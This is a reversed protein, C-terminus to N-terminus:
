AMSRPTQVDLAAAARVRNNIRFFRGGGTELAMRLHARGELQGMVMRHQLAFDTAGIAMVRVLSVRDFATARVKRLREFAAPHTKQALVFGTELTVGRLTARKHELVFCQTFTTHATMRRM